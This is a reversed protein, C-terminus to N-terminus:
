CTLGEQLLLLKLKSIYYNVSTKLRKDSINYIKYYAEVVEDKPLGYEKTFTAVYSSLAKKLYKRVMVSLSEIDSVKDINIQNAILDIIITLLYNKEQFFRIILDKHIESTLIDTDDVLSNHFTFDDYEEICKDLSISDHLLKRKHRNSAQFWNTKICFFRVNIAKEFAKPDKYLSSSTNTWPREELVGLVAEIYWEYADEESFINLNQYVAKSPINWYRVVLESLYVEKNKPDDHYLNALAIQDKQKIGDIQRSKEKYIRKLETLIHIM